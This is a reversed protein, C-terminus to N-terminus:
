GPFLSRVGGVEIETVGIRYGGAFPEIDYWYNIGKCGMFFGIPNPIKCSTATRNDSFSVPGDMIPKYGGRDEIMLIIVQVQTHMEVRKAAVIFKRYAFYASFMLMQLIGVVVLLEIMSMGAASSRTSFPTQRM